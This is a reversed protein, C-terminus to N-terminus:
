FRMKGESLSRRYHGTLACSLDHVLWHDWFARRLHGTAPHQDSDADSCRRLRRRSAVPDNDGWGWLAALAVGTKVPTRILAIEERDSRGKAPPLRRVDPASKTISATPPCRYGGATSFLGSGL